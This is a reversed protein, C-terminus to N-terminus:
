RGIRPRDGQYTPLNRAAPSSASLDGNSAATVKSAIDDIASKIFFVSGGIPIVVILLAIALAGLNASLSSARAPKLHSALASLRLALPPHTAFWEGLKMFATNLDRDQAAFATRNVAPAFQPGAALICLGDLSLDPNDSAQFGYRDCTYECARSYASGLFPIVFAPGILWRLDLHGRHLHGLEHAIIFDLADKNNGCAYVLESFLVIFKARGFRTAFANLLGGSQRLYVDPVKELGIRRSLEVVRAYIEPMQHPGLKISSGRVHAILSMHAFFLFAGLMLGYVLGIVSLVIVIWLAIGVILLAVRLPNEGASPTVKIADNASQSRM